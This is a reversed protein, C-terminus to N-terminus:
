KNIIRTLEEKAGEVSPANFTAYMQVITYDKGILDANQKEYDCLEKTPKIQVTHKKDKYAFDLFLSQNKLAEEQYGMAQSGVCNHQHIGEEIIKKRNDLFTIRSDDKINSKLKNWKSDTSFTETELKKQLKLQELAQREAVEQEAEILHQASHYDIKVKGKTGKLYDKISNILANARELRATEADYDYGLNLRRQIKDIAHPKFSYVPDNKAFRDYLYLSYISLWSCVPAAIYFPYWRLPSDPDFGKKGKFKKDSWKSILLNLRNQRYWNIVRTLEHNTLKTSMAAFASLEPVTFKSLNIKAIVKVKKVRKLAGMIIQDRSKNLNQLITSYKIGSSSAVVHYELAEDRNNNAFVTDTRWKLYEKWFDQMKILVPIKGLINDTGNILDFAQDTKLEYQSSLKGYDNFQFHRVIGTDLHLYTMECIQLDKSTIKIFKARPELSRKERNPVKILKGGFVPQISKVYYKTFILNYGNHNKSASKSINMTIFYWDPDGFYPYHNYSEGTTYLDLKKVHSMFQPDANQVIRAYPYLKEALLKGAEKYTFVKEGNPIPQTRGALFFCVPRDKMTNFDLDIDTEVDDPKFKHIERKLRAFKDVKEGAYIQAGNQDRDPPCVFHYPRHLLYNNLPKQYTAEFIQKGLALQDDTSLPFSPMEKIFEMSQKFFKTTKAM